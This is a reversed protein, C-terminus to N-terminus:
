ANDLGNAGVTHTGSGFQTLGTTVFHIAVHLATVALLSM